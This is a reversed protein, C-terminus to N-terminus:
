PAYAPPPVPLGKAEPLAAIDAAVKGARDGVEAFSASVAALAGQATHSEVFSMLPVKNEAAESLVYTALEETFLKPDPPLWLVDVKRIMAEVADRAETGKSVPAVVLTIGKEAAAARAHELYLGSSHPDYVLGVHHAHPLVTLIQNLVAAPDAELPVGTVTSSQNLRTVGLVMCFIVPRSSVHERAAKLSKRG